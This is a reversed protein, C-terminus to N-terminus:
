TVQFHTKGEDAATDGVPAGEESSHDGFQRALQAELQQLGDELGSMASWGVEQYNAQKRCYFCFIVSLLYPILL